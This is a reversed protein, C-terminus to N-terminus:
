KQSGMSLSIIEELKTRFNSNKFSFLYFYLQCIFSRAALSSKKVSFPHLLITDFIESEM